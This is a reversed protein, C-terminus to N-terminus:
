TWNLELCNDNLKLTFTNVGLMVKELLTVDQRAETPNLSPHRAIVTYNGAPLDLFIADAVPFRVSQQAVVRGGFTLLVTVLEGDVSAMGVGRENRVVAIIDSL